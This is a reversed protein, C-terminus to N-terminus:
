NEAVHKLGYLYLVQGLGEARFRRDTWSNEVGWLTVQNPDKSIQKRLRDFDKYSTEDLDTDVVEYNPDNIIRYMYTRQDKPTEDKVEPGSNLGIMKVHGVTGLTPHIARVWIEKRDEGLSTDEQIDINIDEVSYAEFLIPELKM